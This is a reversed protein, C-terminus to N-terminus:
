LAAYRSMMTAVEARTATGTPNLKGANGTIIGKNVAWTMADAAWDSIADVDEYGAMGMAADVTEGSFRYLMTALEQRTILGNPNTGDSIGEAVAWDMGAQYWPTSGTTDVGDMRALVTMIMGRTTTGNPAFSTESVGTFLGKAVVDDIAAEAWHGKTDVFGTAEPETAEPETAEPQTPTTTTGGTVSGTSSGGTTGGGISGTSGTVEYDVTALNMAYDVVQVSLADKDLITEGLVDGPLISKIDFEIEAEAANVTAVDGVREGKYYLGAAQVGSTADKVAVTVTGAVTDIAKIAATPAKTDVKVPMLITHESADLLAKADEAVLEELINYISTLEGDKNVLPENRELAEVFANLEARVEDDNVLELYDYEVIGKIQYYYQGDAVVKGKADTGDWGLDHGYKDYATTGIIQSLNGDSALTEFYEYEYGLDNVVKGNANLIQVGVMKSNRLLAMQAYVDDALGDGNPSIAVWDGNLNGQTRVTDLYTRLAAMRNGDYVPVALYGGKGDPAFQNAGLVAETTNGNITNKTHMNTVHYIPYDESDIAVENRDEYATMTDFIPADSWDGRFGIYPIVLDTAVAEETTDALFIYGELFMGNPFIEDYAAMDALVVKVTVVAANEGQAKANVTIATADSGEAYANVNDGATVIEGNTISEV